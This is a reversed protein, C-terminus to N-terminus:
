GQIKNLIDNAVNLSEELVKSARYVYNMVQKRLAYTDVDMKKNQMNRGSPADKNKRVEKFRSVYRKM